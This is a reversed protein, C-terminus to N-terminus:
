RAVVPLINKIGFDRDSKNIAACQDKVGQYFLAFHKAELPLDRVVFRQYLDVALM